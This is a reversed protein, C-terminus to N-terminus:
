LRLSFELVGLSDVAAAHGLVRRRGHGTWKYFNEGTRHSANMNFIELHHGYIHEHIADRLTHGMVKTDVQQGSTSIGTANM